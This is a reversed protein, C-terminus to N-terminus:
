QVFRLKAKALASALVKMGSPGMGHLARVSSESTQSLDRLSGLGANLLARCAPASLGLAQWTDASPAAQNRKAAKPRSAKAKATGTKKVAATTRAPKASGARDAEAGALQALQKKGAIRRYSDTVLAFCEAEALAQFNVTVWGHQGIYPTKHFRDDGLLHGQAEPGLNISVTATAGAERQDMGVIAYPKKGVRFAPHHVMVYEEAGPLKKSIGRLAQLAVEQRKEQQKGLKM